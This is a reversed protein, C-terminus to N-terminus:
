LRINGDPQLYKGCKLRSPGKISTVFNVLLQRDKNEMKVMASGGRM